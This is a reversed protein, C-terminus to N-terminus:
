KQVAMAAAHLVTYWRAGMGHGISKIRRRESLGILAQRLTAAPLDLRTVLESLSLGPKHANLALLVAVAAPSGERGHDVPIFASDEM